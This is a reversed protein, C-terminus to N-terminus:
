KGKIARFLFFPSPLTVWQSYRCLLFPHRSASFASKLFSHVVNMVPLEEHTDERSGQRLASISELLSGRQMMRKANSGLFSNCTASVNCLHLDLGMTQSQVSTHYSHHFSDLMPLPFATDPERQIEHM